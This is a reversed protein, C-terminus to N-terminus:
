PFNCAPQTISLQGKRHTKHMAILVCAAERRGAVGPRSASSIKGPFQEPKQNRSKSAVEDPLDVGKAHCLCFSRKEESSYGVVCLRAVAADKSHAASTLQESRATSQVLLRDIKASCTLSRGGKIRCRTVNETTQWKSRAQQVM